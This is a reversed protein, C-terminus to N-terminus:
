RRPGRPSVPLGPGRREGRSAPAPSLGGGSDGSDWPNAGRVYAGRQGSNSRGGDRGGDRSTDAYPSGGSAEYPNFGSGLGALGSTEYPNFASLGSGGSGGGRREREGGRGIDRDGGTRDREKERERETSGARPGGGLRAKLREQASMEKSQPQQPPTAGRTQYSGARQSPLPRASPVQLPQSSPAPLRESAYPNSTTSM